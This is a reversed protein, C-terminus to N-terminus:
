ALEREVAAQFATGGSVLALERVETTCGGQGPEKANCDGGKQLVGQTAVKLEDWGEKKRKCTSKGDM